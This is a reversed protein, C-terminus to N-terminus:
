RDNLGLVDQMSYCAPSKDIVWHAAKLAGEAFVHRNGARHALEVREGPGAFIVTHEGVEEGGRLAHVGIEDDSREGMIGQRGHRVCQPNLNRSQLIAEVLSEATGSPADKKHCHHMEVVEPHYNKELVKAAISTLYFLLNVGISFNGAWVIPISSSFETIRKKEDESHGTTGIVAPKNHTKALELIECTVSHFSFDLIIDCDEIVDAPDDGMDIAAQIIADHMSAAATITQGMRGKSGNLLVKLAM